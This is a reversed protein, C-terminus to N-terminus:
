YATALLISSEKKKNKKIKMAELSIWYELKNFYSKLKIKKM